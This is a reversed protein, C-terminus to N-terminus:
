ASMVKNWQALKWLDEKHQWELDEKQRAAQWERKHQAEIHKPVAYAYTIGCELCSWVLCEDDDESRELTLPKGCEYEICLPTKSQCIACVDIIHDTEQECVGCYTKSNKRAV